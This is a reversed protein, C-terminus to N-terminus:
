SSLCWTNSSYASMNRSQYSVLYHKMQANIESLIPKTKMFESVCTQPDTNWLDSYKSRSKLFAGVEEKFGNLINNLQLVVKIVDKHESIQRHLPKIPSGGANQARMTDEGQQEAMRDLEKQHQMQSLIMHDWVKIGESTRLILNIAKQLGTQIEELSPQMVVNPIALNLSVELLPVRSQEEQGSWDRKYKSANIQMRSKIAELTRKTCLVLAETNRQAYTNLFSFFQCPQCELCRGRRREHQLCEYGEETSLRGTQNPDMHNKILEILENLAREVSNSKSDSPEPRPVGLISLCIFVSLESVTTEVESGKVTEFLCSDAMAQCIEYCLNHVLILRALHKTATYVTDETIKLFAALTVQGNEPLDCLSTHAMEDLVEDIRCQLIDSARKTILRLADLEDRVKTMYEEVSTTSWTLISLGPSLAHQVRDTFTKFLPILLTPIEAESEEIEAILEKLIYRAECTMQWIEVDFNVLLKETQPSRILLSASLGVLGEEMARCWAQHHILEYHVLVNAIKNFQKVCKQGDPTLLTDPCSHKFHQMPTDIQYFLHRAWYIKGAIPTMNRAIPPDVKQQEYLHGINNLETSFARLVIAYKADLDMQCFELKRFKSLINLRREVDKKMQETSDFNHKKLNDCLTKYRAVISEVGELKLDNLAGFRDMLDLINLLNKLQSCYIDFKGFIYTESFDFQKGSPNEMLKRRVRHFHEQYDRNLQTCENIRASLVSRPLDWIRSVGHSVYHRCAGILQNTIKVFLSTVRESTNYHQSICYIMRIANLIVPIQQGLKSPTANSFSGLFNDLTSLYKVNDKAENAAETIRNDLQRWYKIIRARAYQLAMIVAQVPPTRMEDILNAFRIMRGRWYALEVSPGIDDSERRIQESQNLLKEIENGWKQVLRNLREMSEFSNVINPLENPNSLQAVLNSEEETSLDIKDDMNVRASNMAELYRRVGVFFEDVDSSQGTKGLTGWDDMNELLPIVLKEFYDVLSQVLNGGSGDLQQFVVENAINAVTLAKETVRLFIYCVGRLCEHSGHTILLKAPMTTGESSTSAQYFFLLRRSGGAQFFEEFADWREESLLMETIQSVDLGTVQSLTSRREERMQRWQKQRERKAEAKSVPSIRVPRTEKPILCGFFLDVPYSHALKSWM